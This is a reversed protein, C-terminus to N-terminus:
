NLMYKTRFTEYQEYQQFFEVTEKHGQIEAIEMPTMHTWNDEFNVFISANPYEVKSILFKGSKAALFIPTYGYCSDAENLSKIKPALLKFLETQGFWAALHIPTYGTTTTPNLNDEYSAIIEFLGLIGM